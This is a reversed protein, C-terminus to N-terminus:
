GDAGDRGPLAGGAAGGSRPGNICGGSGFAVMGTTGPKGGALTDAGSDGGSAVAMVVRGLTAGAGGSGAAGGGAAGRGATWRALQAPVKSGSATKRDTTM